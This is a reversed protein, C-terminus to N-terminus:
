AQESSGSEPVPSVHSFLVLYYFPSVQHGPHGPHHGGQLPPHPAGRHLADQLLHAPGQDPPLLGRQLGGGGPVAGASPRVRACAAPTCVGEEM